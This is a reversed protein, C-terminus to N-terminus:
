AVENPRKVVELKSYKLIIRGDFPEHLVIYVHRDVAGAVVFGGHERYYSPLDTGGGGLPVRLPSRTIIVRNGRSSDEQGQSSVAVVGWVVHQSGPRYKRIPRKRCLVFRALGDM